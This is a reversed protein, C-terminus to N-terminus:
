KLILREIADAWENRLEFVIESHAASRADSPPMYRLMDAVQLQREDPLGAATMMLYAFDRLALRLSEIQDSNAQVKRPLHEPMDPM